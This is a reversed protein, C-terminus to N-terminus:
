KERYSPCRSLSCSKKESEKLVILEITIRVLVISQMLTVCYNESYKKNKIFGEWHSDTFYFPFFLLDGLDQSTLHRPCLDGEKGGAGESQGM